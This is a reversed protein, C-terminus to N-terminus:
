RWAPMAWLGPGLDLPQVPLEGYNQVVPQPMTGKQFQMWILRQGDPSVAPFNLGPMGDGYLQVDKGELDCTKWDGDEFLIRGKGPILVPNNGQRLIKVQGQLDLIAVSNKTPLDMSVIQRHVLVLGQGDDLWALFATDMPAGLKTAKETAMDVLYIQSQLDPSLETVALKTGDPSLVPSMLLGVPLEGKGLRRNEGTSLNVEYIATRTDDAEGGLYVCKRDHSFCGVIGTASQLPIRRIRGRELDVLRLDLARKHRKANEVNALPANAIMFLNNLDVTQTPDDTFDDWPGIGEDIATDTAEASLNLSTVQWPVSSALGNLLVGTRTDVEVEQGKNLAEEADAIRRVVEDRTAPDSVGSLSNRLVNLSRETYAKYEASLHVRLTATDDVESEVTANVDAPLVRLESMSLIAYANPLSLPAENPRFKGIPEGQERVYWLGDRSVISFVEESEGDEFLIRLVQKTAFGNVRTDIQLTANPLIVQTTWSVRATDVALQRTTQEGREILKEVLEPASMALLNGRAIWILFCALVLQRATQRM